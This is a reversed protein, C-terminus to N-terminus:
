FFEFDDSVNFISYQFESDDSVDKFIPNADKNIVEESSITINLCTTPQGLKGDIIPYTLRTGDPSDFVFYSAQIRKSPRGAKM